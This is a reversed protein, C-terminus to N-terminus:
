PVPRIVIGGFRAENALCRVGDVLVIHDRTVAQAPTEDDAYIAEFGGSLSPNHFRLPRGDVSVARGACETCLYDPYRPNPRVGTRCIPCHQTTM